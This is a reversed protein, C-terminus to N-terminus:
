FIPLGFSHLAMNIDLLNYNGSKIFFQIIMDFLIDESLHFGAKQLLKQTDDLDLRMGIALAIVTRKAPIYDIDSRIKSFLKRDIGARKYVEVHDMGRSTILNMM